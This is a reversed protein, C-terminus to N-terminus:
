MAGARTATVGAGALLSERLPHDGALSGALRRVIERSRERHGTAAETNGKRLDLSAATAHLRWAALPADVNELLALGSSIFAAAEDWEDRAAAVRASVEFALARWTREATLETAERFLRAETRADLGRVLSVETLGLHLPMRWIWDM